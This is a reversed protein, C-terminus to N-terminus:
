FLEVSCLIKLFENFCCSFFTIGAGISQPTTSEVAFKREKISGGTLFLSYRLIFNKSSNISITKSNTSEFHLIIASVTLAITMLTM